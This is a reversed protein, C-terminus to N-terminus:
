WPLDFCRADLRGIGVHGWLGFAARRTEDTWAMCDPRTVRRVIQRLGGESAVYGAWVGPFDKTSGVQTVEVGAHRWRRHRHTHGSSVLVHPHARALGELLARSEARAIGVPWGEPYLHAQLQHHVLVLVAGDRPAEAAADLAAATVQSTLTGLNHGPITSDVMVTRLGPLDRVMIPYAVSVGFAAAADIPALPHLNSPHAQDHNGAIADVPVAVGAVLRAYDRWQRAAGTNTIDGKVFLREAGWSVAEAAAATSCRMPHPVAPTPREEITGRHGFVRTGLHLDSITAVRCLEEGPLAALTRVALSRARGVADGSVEITLARGAPLGDIAIAGVPGVIPEDGPQCKDVLEREDALQPAVELETPAMGPLPRGGKDLARFLLRGPRLRRWTVQASRDDVAFVAVEPRTSFSTM